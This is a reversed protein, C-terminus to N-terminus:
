RPDYVFVKRVWAQTRDLERCIADLTERVDLEVRTSIMQNKM